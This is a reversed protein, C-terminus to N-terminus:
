DDTTRSRASASGTRADPLCSARRACGRRLSERVDSVAVRIEDLFRDIVEPQVDFVHREGRRLLIGARWLHAFVATERRHRAVAGARGSVIAEACPRHVPGRRLLRAEVPACGRLEIRLVHEVREDDAAAVLERHGCCLGDGLARRLGVVREEEVAADAHALGVEHVGDTVVHLAALRM